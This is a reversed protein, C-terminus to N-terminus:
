AGPRGGGMRGGMGGGTSYQGAVVTAAQTAGAVSATGVGAAVDASGGTYVTYTEGATVAASSFVLSATTKTPVFASVVNGATDVLSIPTGAAVPSSFTVQVGSQTSSSGPAVAMGSSGGAALVGGDVKLEGNVDLAGNGNNTPGNVVM